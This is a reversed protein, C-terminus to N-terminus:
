KLLSEPIEEEDFYGWYCAGTTHKAIFEGLLGTITAFLKM